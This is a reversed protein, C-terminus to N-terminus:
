AVLEGHQVSQWSGRQVPEWQGKARIGDQAPMAIEESSVVGGSGPRFTWASWPGDAGNTRKDQAQVSLIRV